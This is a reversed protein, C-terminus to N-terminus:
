GVWAKAALRERKWVAQHEGVVAGFQARDLGVWWSDGRKNETKPRKAKPKPALATKWRQLHAKRKATMPQRQGPQWGM